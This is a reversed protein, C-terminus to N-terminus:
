SEIIDEVKSELENLESGINDKFERWKKGSYKSADSIEQELEAKEDLLEQYEEQMEARAEQTKQKMKIELQLMKSEIKSIIKAKAKSVTLNDLFDSNIIKTKLFFKLIVM